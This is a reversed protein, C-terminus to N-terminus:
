ALIAFKEVIEDLVRPDRRRRDSQAAIEAGARISPVISLNNDIMFSFALQGNRLLDILEEQSRRYFVTDPTVLFHGAEQAFKVLVGSMGVDGITEPCVEVFKGIADSIRKPRAGLKLLRNIARLVVLDRFTYSRRVGHRKDRPTEPVFIGERELHNLMWTKEFGALRSVERAYFM